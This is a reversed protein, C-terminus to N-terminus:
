QIEGEEQRRRLAKYSTIRVKFSRGIVAVLGGIRILDDCVADLLELETGVRHRERARLVQQRVHEPFADVSSALDALSPRKLRYSKIDNSM